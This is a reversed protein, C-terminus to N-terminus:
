DSSSISLIDEIYQNIHRTKAKISLYQLATCRLTTNQEMGGLLFTSFMIYHYDGAIHLDESWTGFAHLPKYEYKYIRPTVM